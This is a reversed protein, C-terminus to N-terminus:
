PLLRKATNKLYVQCQRFGEAYTVGCQFGRYRACTRIMDCFDINDHDLMWGIQSDHCRLM